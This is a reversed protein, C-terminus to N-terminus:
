RSPVPQERLLATPPKVMIYSQIHVEIYVTTGNGPSSSVKFIGHMSQIRSTLNSIGLGGSSVTTMDFGVGNDEITVTLLGELCTLQLLVSTAQAHKIINNLSEQIARYILLEFETKMRPVDGIISYQVELDRHNIRSAFDGIAHQLGHELIIEPALNHSIDRVENNAQHILSQVKHYNDKSNGSPTIASLHMKAAALLGSVGDHLEKAQRAREREEGTLQATLLKFQEENRITRRRFMYIILGIIVLTILILVAAVVLIIVKNKREIANEHKAIVLQQEALAKQTLTSQYKLELGHIGSKSDADFLSDKLVAYKKQFTLADRYDGRKESLEAGFLYIDKLENKPFSNEIHPFLKNYYHQSKEFDHLHFYSMSLGHYIYPAYDPPTSIQLGQKAKLLTQLAENYQKQRIFIDGLNIYGDLVRDDNNLHLALNIMEHLHKIADSYMENIMESCALNVLSNSIRVSDKMEVALTYGKRAYHLAKEKDNLDIFISALNSNFKAQNESHSNKEALHLAKIYNEAAVPLNGMAQYLVGMNNFTNALKAEDHAETARMRVHKCVVLAENFKMQRHLFRIHEEMCRMELSYVSLERALTTALKFYLDASDPDGTNTKIDAARLYQYIFTTDRLTTDSLQRTDPRQAKEDPQAALGTASVFCLSLFFSFHIKM